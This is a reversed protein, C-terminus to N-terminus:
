ASVPSASLYGVALLWDGVIVHSSIISWSKFAKLGDIPYHSPNPSTVSKGTTGTAARSGNQEAGNGQDRVRLFSSMQYQVSFNEVLWPASRKPGNAWYRWTAYGVFALYGLIALSHGIIFNILQVCYTGNSSKQKVM